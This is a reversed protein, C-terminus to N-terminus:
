ILWAALIVGIICGGITAYVLYRNRTESLSKIQKNTSTRLESLETRLQSVSSQASALELHHEEELVANERATSVNAALEKLYTGLATPTTFAKDAIQQVLMEDSAHGIASVFPMDTELIASAIDPDDFVSLSSGGGRIIAFAQFDDKKPLAEIISDKSKLSVSRPTFIYRAAATGMASEVDAPAVSNKGYILLLRPKRRNEWTRRLIAAVDWYGQRAKKRQVEFQQRAAPPLFPRERERCDTVVFTLRIVSEVRIDRDLYGQFTYIHQDLIDSRIAIPIRLTLYQKDNEDVLRDYYYGNYERKGGATYVSRISIIKKDASTTIAKDFIKALSVPTFIDSHSRNSM